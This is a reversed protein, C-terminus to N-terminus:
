PLLVNMTKNITLQNNKHAHTNPRHAVQTRIDVLSSSSMANETVPSLSLQSSPISGLGGPLPTLVRSQQVMEICEMDAWANAIVTWPLPLMLTSCRSFHLLEPWLVSCGSWLWSLRLYLEGHSRRHGQEQQPGSTLECPVLWPLFSNSPKNVLVAMVLFLGSLLQLNWVSKWILATQNSPVPSFHPHCLWQLGPILNSSLRLPNSCTRWPIGM